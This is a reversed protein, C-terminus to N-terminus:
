TPNDSMGYLKAFHVSDDNPALDLEDMFRLARGISTENYTAIVVETGPDNGNGGRACRRLLLDGADDYCRHTDRVTDHIPSPRDLRKAREREYVMYAGQVLKAAFHFGFRDSRRLDTAIREPKDKLYCQYTSFVVPRETRKANNFERQLELVLADIAPQFKGHEVDVLLKTGRNRAELALARLQEATRKMLAIEDSSPIALALPGTAHCKLTFAPLAYPTLTDVFAIYDVTGTTKPDLTEPIEALREEDAHFYHEYCRVFKDRGMTGEGGRRVEQVTAQGRRDDGVDAGLARSEVAGHGQAGRLQVPERGPHLPHLRRLRRHSPRSASLSTTTCAPLNTSQPSSSSEKAKMTREEPTTTGGTARRPTNLGFHSRRWKGGAEPHGTAHGGSGRRRLLTPLLHARGRHQDPKQGPNLLVALPPIRRAKCPPPKPVRPVGRTSLELPGGWSRWIESFPRCRPGALLDSSEVVLRFIEILEM